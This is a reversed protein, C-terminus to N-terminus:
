IGRILILEDSQHRWSRWRCVGGNAYISLVGPEKRLGSGSESAHVERVSRIKRLLMPIGEAGQALTRYRDVRQEEMRVTNTRSFGGICMDYLICLTKHGFAEICFRASKIKKPRILMDTRSPSRDVQIGHEGGKVAGGAM